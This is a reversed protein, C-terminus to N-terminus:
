AHRLHDEDAHLGGVARTVTVGPAAEGRRLHKRHGLHFQLVTAALRLGGVHHMDIGLHQVQGLFALTLHDAHAEMPLDALIDACRHFVEVFDPVQRAEAVVWGPRDGADLLAVSRSERDEVGRRDEESLQGCAHNLHNAIWVSRDQKMLASLAFTMLIVRELGPRPSDDLSNDIVTLAKPWGQAMVARGLAAKSDFHYYFAGTTVNAKDVIDQLRTEGYGHETFLDVAADIIQQRTAASRNQRNHAPSGLTM